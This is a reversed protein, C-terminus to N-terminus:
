QGAGNSRSKKLPVRVVIRTGKCPASDITLEGSVNRVREEISVLGLGGQGRVDIPDFGKGFDEISLLIEDRTCALRVDVRVAQAHQRINHLSAQTVRYLCLAIDGPIGDCQGDPDCTVEIGHESGFALCENELAAALGLDDLIAPHLRRSIGHIQAALQSIEAGILGVTKSDLVRGATANEEMDSLLMGLMTLKQSFVDHLERSLYTYEEEQRATLRGTLQRLENRNRRITEEMQRQSEEAQKRETIDAIFVVAVLNKGLEIPSVSIEVPFTTGDRRCGSLDLGQGMLRTRPQAFFDERHQRHARHLDAPLLLEIPQGLLEERRYGFIREATRNVLQICGDRGVALIAQPSAELVARVRGERLAEELQKRDTIDIVSGIFGRYEGSLSVRPAASDIAWRYEDDARRLRYELQLVEPKKSPMRFPSEVRDRDGPHVADLWGFGLGTEPRQGTFEYWRKSLYTCNGDAETVRIMVPANDAMLRFREESERIADEALKRDTIDICIGVMRVPAGADNRILKGRGEVWRLSGDPWIIRYELSHDVGLEIVRAISSRVRERDDAHIDTWFADLTGGFTGPRLGHIVELGPSWVVESTDIWWEWTGGRGAELALLLRQESERLATEAKQRATIDRAVSSAGVVRGSEDRVPSITLSVPVRGGDKRLRDTDLSKIPQGDRFRRLIEEEEAARDPPVILSVHCGVAEEATYGFLQQAGANWSLIIGDLSKGVIADSSEFIAVVERLRRESEQSAALAAQLEESVAELEANAIELKATLDQLERNRSSHGEQEAMISALTERSKALEHQLRGRKSDATLQPKRRIKDPRREPNRVRELLIRYRIGLLATEERYVEINVRAPESSVLLEVNQRQAYGAKTAEHIAAFVHSHLQRRLVRHLALAPTGPAFEVYPGTAGLSEVIELAQNVVFGPLTASAM